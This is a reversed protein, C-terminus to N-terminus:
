AFAMYIFLLIGLLQILVMKYNQASSIKFHKKMTSRFVLRYYIRIALLLSLVVLIMQSVSDTIILVSTLLGFCLALNGWPKLVLCLQTEDNAEFGYITKYVKLAFGAFWVSIIGTIIHYIAFIYLYATAIHLIIDM